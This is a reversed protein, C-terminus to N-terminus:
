GGAGLIVARGTRDWGPSRADLNATFGRGDTNTAHLLGDRLWLTNAAGLEQALEDPRDARRFARGRQPITVTGGGYGSSGDKLAAIFAAFDEPAVEKAQYSGALGHTKLWHGHIMPSRSHRVPYGTVFAKPPGLTERSDDM